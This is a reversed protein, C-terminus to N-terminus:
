IEHLPMMGTSDHANVAAEVTKRSIHPAFLEIFDYEYGRLYVGRRLGIKTISFDFLHSADMERLRTDREPDFAMRAVVGVGLGLEVYTKIVDSDLATLVINPTLGRAEFAKNIKSRGAFAFDYTILPYQAIAHLSLPPQELLPHGPPVIVSRNWQHCPLTVLEKYRDISETAIAIDAEGNIVMQAVQTPNGQHLSLRVLPYRRIFARVVEPLAYRAQTHTTAISLSGVAKNSFEQGAQKLNDADRLMREAIELIIRGPPTVGTVRKGSRVFVEVGLEDELLRIQKSIGPQSTFLAEAAASVNLGQRSVEQLYRLQQLKM